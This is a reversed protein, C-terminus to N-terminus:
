STEALARLSPFDKPMRDHGCYDITIDPNKSLAVDPDSARTCSPDTNIGMTWTVVLPWQHRNDTSGGSAMNIDTTWAAALPRTQMHPGVADPAMNRIRAIM